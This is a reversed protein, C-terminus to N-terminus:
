TRMGTGRAVASLWRRPAAGGAASAVFCAMAARASGARMHATGAEALHHARERRAARRLVPDELWTLLKEHTHASQLFPDPGRRAGSSRGAHDRVLALCEPIAIAEARSALRVLFEHDERIRPDEDFGSLEEFLQRPVLVTVVSASAHTRILALAIRGSPGQWEGSRAAIRCGSEDIHEYRTYSWSENCRANAELQVELKDPLWVDDSDLFCLYRGTARIAGANRTRAINGTHPLRVIRLRADTIADLCEATADDSGDDVVLLELDAFTQELVSRVALPLLM